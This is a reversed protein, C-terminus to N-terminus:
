SSNVSGLCMPSILTTSKQNTTGKTRKRPYPKFVSAVCEDLIDAEVQLVVSHRLRFGITQVTMTM